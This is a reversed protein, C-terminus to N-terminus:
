ASVRIHAVVGEENPTPFPRVGIGYGISKSRFAFENLDSTTGSGRSVFGAVYRIGRYARGVTVSLLEASWDDLEQVNDLLRCIQRKRSLEIFFECLIEAAISPYSSLALTPIATEAGSVLVRGIYPISEIIASSFQRTRTRGARREQLSVLETWISRYKRYLETGFRAFLSNGEHKAGDAYLLVL